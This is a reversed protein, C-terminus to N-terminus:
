AAEAEEVPTQTMVSQACIECERVYRKPEGQRQFSRTVTFSHTHAPTVIVDM